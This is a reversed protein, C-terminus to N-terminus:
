NRYFWVLYAEFALYVVSLGIAGIMAWYVMKLFLKVPATVNPSNTKAM